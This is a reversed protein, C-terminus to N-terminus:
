PLNPRGPRGPRHRDRVDLQRSDEAPGEPQLLGDFLEQRLRAHALVRRAQRPQRKIHEVAAIANNVGLFQHNKAVLKTLEGKREDFLTFNEVLDLLKRKECTGRIMTDLSILGSEKEDDIKKWEAFHEFGATMSGIRAKSGNSLIIFANYWFM